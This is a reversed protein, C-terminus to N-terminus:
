HFGKGASYKGFYYVGSVFHLSFVTTTVLLKIRVWNNRYDAQRIWRILEIMGYIFVLHLALQFGWGFNGDRMRPGTEILFAVQFLAVLFTLWALLLHDDRFCQVPRFLLICLPFASVLLLSVYANPTRMSMAKLFAIEIGSESGTGFTNFYQLAMMLVVPLAVMLARTYAQPSKLHRLLVYLGCAPLFALAFSPKIVTCWVFLLSILVCKKIKGEAGCLLLPFLHFIMYAFPKSLIITPNHWTNPSSQGLYLNINFFPMYIATVLVLMLTVFLFFGDNGSSVARLNDAAAGSAPLNGKKRAKESHSESTRRENSHRGLESALIRNIV